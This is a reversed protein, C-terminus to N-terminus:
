NKFLISYIKIIFCNKECEANPLDTWLIALFSTLLFLKKEIILFASLLGCAKFDFILNIDAETIQGYWVNEPYVVM